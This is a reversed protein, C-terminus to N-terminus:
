FKQDWHQIIRQLPSRPSQSSKSQNALSISSPLLIKTVFEKADRWVEAQQKATSAIMKNARMRSNRDITEDLANDIIEYLKSREEMKHVIAPGSMRKEDNEFYIIKDTQTSRQVVGAEPIHEGTGTSSFSKSKELYHFDETQTGCTKSVKPVVLKSPVNKRILFKTQTEKSIEKSSSNSNNSANKIKAVKIDKATSKIKQM